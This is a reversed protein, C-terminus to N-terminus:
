DILNMRKLRPIVEHEFISGIKIGKPINSTLWLIEEVENDPIPEGQWNNVFFADM